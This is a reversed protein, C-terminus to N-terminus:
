VISKGNNEKERCSKCVGYIELKHGLITYGMKEKLKKEYEEFPCEDVMTIKKCEMCVLHHKHEFSNLEFLTKNDSVTNTKIILGNEVLTNLVRYITSLNISIKQNVLALYIQDATLPQTSTELLELISNRHRTNKLGKHNLVEKYTIIESM